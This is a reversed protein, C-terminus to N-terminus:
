YYCSNPSTDARIDVSVYFYSIEVDCVVSILEFDSLFLTTYLLLVFYKICDTLQSTPKAVAWLRELGVTRHRGTARSAFPRKQEPSDNM